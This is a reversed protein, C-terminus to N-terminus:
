KKENKEFRISRRNKVALARVAERFVKMSSLVQGVKFIPNRMDVDPNFERYKKKIFKKPREYPADEVDSSDVISKLEADEDVNSQSRENNPNIEPM